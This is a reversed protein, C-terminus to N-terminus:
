LTFKKVVSDLNDAIEQQKISMNRVDEVMESVHETSTMVKNGTDATTEAATAINEIAHAVEEMINQVNASMHSVKDSINAFFEADKGYQSATDVFNNYDPTVTEQLFTLLGKSDNSLQEFANQVQGIITQINGVASATEGALNGIEGAVVAFGKGQEGARAAEISANLSLLNIQEAINAIVNAMEGINEVVKANEISKDLRTEFQSSLETASNYSQRSSEEVSLARKKIDNSIRLGEETQTALVQVSSHVEEASANVEETAASTSMMAENIQSMFNQIEIFEEMLKESSSNLLNSSDAIDSSHKSINMIVDRNGMYMDNLSNGMTGLEDKSKVDIPDITFDGKALNQAFIQVKRISKAISSVQLLVLAICIILAIACVAILDYVLHLTSAMIEDEPMQIVVHWGTSPISTYYLNYDTGDDAIYFTEGTENALINKGADTLSSNEEELLSKNNSIKETEVGALYTGNTSLLFATGGEGVKIGSIVTEISSLKVDVTVCGIFTSGDFVPM